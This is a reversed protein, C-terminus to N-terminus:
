AMINTMVGSVRHLAVLSGISRARFAEFRLRERRHVTWTRSIERLCTHVEASSGKTRTLTSRQERHARTACSIGLTSLLRKRGESRGSLVEAERRCLAGQEYYDACARQLSDVNSFYAVRQHYGNSLVRASSGRDASEADFLPQRGRLRRV